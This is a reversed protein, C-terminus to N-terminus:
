LQRRLERIEEDKSTPKGSTRFGEEKGLGVRGEAAKLWDRLMASRVGLDRALEDVKREGSTIQRVAELKFEQTFQRRKEAM